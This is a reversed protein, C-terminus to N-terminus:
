SVIEANQGNPLIHVYSTASVKKDLQLLASNEIVETLVESWKVAEATLAYLTKPDSKWGTKGFIVTKLSGSDKVITNIVQAAEHYLSM